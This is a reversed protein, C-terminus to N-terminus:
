IIEVRYTVVEKHDIGVGIHYTIYKEGKIKEYFARKSLDDLFLTHFTINGAKVEKSLFTVIKNKNNGDWIELSSNNFTVADRSIAEATAGYSYTHDCPPDKPCPSYNAM